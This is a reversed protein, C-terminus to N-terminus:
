REHLADRPAPHGGLSFGLRLDALAALRAREFAADHEVMRELETALLRSVSTSRQAALVRAQRLLKQDLSLTVNQKM